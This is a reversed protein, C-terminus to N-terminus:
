FLQSETYVTYYAKGTLVLSDEAPKVLIETKGDASFHSMNGLCTAGASTIKIYVNPDSPDDLYSYEFGEDNDGTVEYTYSENFEVNDCDGQDALALAVNWTGNPVCDETAEADLTGTVTLEATCVTTDEGGIPPVGVTESAGSAGGLCGGCVLAGLAVSFWGFKM